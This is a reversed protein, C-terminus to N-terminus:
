SNTGLERQVTSFMNVMTFLGKTLGVNHTITTFMQFDHFKFPLQYVYYGSNCAFQNAIKLIIIVTCTSEMNSTVTDQGGKEAQHSMYTDRSPSVHTEGKEIGPEFM